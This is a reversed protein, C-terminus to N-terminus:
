TQTTGKDHCSLRDSLKPAACGGLGELDDAGLFHFTWAYPLICTADPFSDDLALIVSSCCQAISTLMLTM